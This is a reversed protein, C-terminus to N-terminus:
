QSAMAKSLKSAAKAVKATDINAGFVPLGGSKSVKKLEKRKKDDLKVM